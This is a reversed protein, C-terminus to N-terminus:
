ENINSRSWLQDQIFFPGGFTPTDGLLSALLSWFYNTPSRTNRTPWNFFNSNVCGLHNFNFLSFFFVGKYIWNLSGVTLFCLWPYKWLKAKGTSYFGFEDSTVETRCKLPVCTDSRWGVCVSERACVCVPTLCPHTPSLHLGNILKEGGGGRSGGRGEERGGEWGTILLALSLAASILSAHWRCHAYTRALRCAHSISAHKCGRLSRVHDWTM